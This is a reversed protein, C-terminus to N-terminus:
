QDLPYAGVIWRPELVRGFSRFSMEESINKTPSCQTSDLPLGLPSSFVVCSVRGAYTAIFM